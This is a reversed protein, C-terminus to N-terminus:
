LRLKVPWEKPIISPFRSLTPAATQKTRLYSSTVILDPRIHTALYEAIQEAQAFGRETLAISQPTATPLGINAQSQGHRILLVTPMDGSVVEM